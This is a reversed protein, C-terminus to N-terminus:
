VYNDSHKHYFDFYGFVELMEVMEAVRSPGITEWPKVFIGIRMDSQGGTDYYRILWDDCPSVRMAQCVQAVPWIINDFNTQM